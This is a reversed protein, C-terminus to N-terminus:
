LDLAVRPVCFQFRLLPFILRSYFSLYIPQQQNLSHFLSATYSVDSSLPLLFTVESLHFPLPADRTLPDLSFARV